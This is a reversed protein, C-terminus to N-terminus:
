RKKKQTHTYRHTCYNIGVCTSHVIALNDNDIKMVMFMDVGDEHNILISPVKPNAEITSNVAPPKMQATLTVTVNFRPEMHGEFSFDGDGVSTPM